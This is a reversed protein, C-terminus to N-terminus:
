FLAHHEEPLELIHFYMLRICATFHPLDCEEWVVERYHDMIEWVEKIDLNYMKALTEDNEERDAHLAIRATKFDWGLKEQLLLLNVAYAYQIRSTEELKTNPSIIDCDIM